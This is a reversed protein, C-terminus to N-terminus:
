GQCGKQVRLKELMDHMMYGPELTGATHPPASVRPMGDPGRLKVTATPLGRTGSVVQLEMLQWLEVPQWVEDSLIALLDEDQVGGGKTEAVLKFRNFVEILQEGDVTM